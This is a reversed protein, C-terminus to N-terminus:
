YVQGRQSVNESTLIKIIGLSSVYSANLVYPVPRPLAIATGPPPLTDVRNPNALHYFPPAAIFTTWGNFEASNPARPAWVCVCMRVRRNGGDGGGGEGSASSRENANEFQVLKVGSDWLKIGCWRTWMISNLGDPFNLRRRDGRFKWRTAAASVTSVRAYGTSLSPHFLPYIM